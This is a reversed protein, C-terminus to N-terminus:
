GEEVGGNSEGRTKVVMGGCEGKDGDDRGWGVM